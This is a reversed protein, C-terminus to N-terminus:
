STAADETGIEPAPQQPDAEGTVEWHGVCDGGDQMVITGDNQDSCFELAAFPGVTDIVKVQDETLDMTITLKQM